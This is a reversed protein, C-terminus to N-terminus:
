GHRIEKQCINMLVDALLRFLLTGANEKLRTAFRPLWLRLHEEWFLSWLLWPRERASPDVALACQRALHQVFELEVALHDPTEAGQRPSWALEGRAYLSILWDVSPGMLIGQHLYWSAYPPVPIGGFRSVFLRTYEVQQEQLFEEPSQDLRHAMEVAQQSPGWEPGNLRCAGRVTEQISHLTRPYVMVKKTWDLLPELEEIFTTEVEM